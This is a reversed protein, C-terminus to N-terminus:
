IVDLNDGLDIVGRPERQGLNYPLRAVQGRVAGVQDINAAIRALWPRAHALAHSCQFGFPMSDGDVAEIRGFDCRGYRGASFQNQRHVGAIAIASTVPSSTTAMGSSKGVSPPRSSVTSCSAASLTGSRMSGTM